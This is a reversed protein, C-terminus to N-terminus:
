ALDNAKLAIAIRVDGRSEAMKATEVIFRCKAMAVAKEQARPHSDPKFAKLFLSLAEAEDIPDAMTSSLRELEKQINVQFRGTSHRQQVSIGRLVRM